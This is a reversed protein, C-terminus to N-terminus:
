DTGAATIAEIRQNAHTIPAKLRGPARALFAVYSKKAEAPRGLNELAVGHYYYPLAYYPELAIAQALQAAGEEYRQASLLISGYDLRLAPDTGDIQVAQHYEDLAMATDGQMLAVTGLAAHARAYSLDETLAKGFAERAQDLQRGALHAMGAAYLYMARSQYFYALTKQERKNMEDVLAYVQAAASDYQRLMFQSRALEFRLDFRRPEKALAQRLHQVARDFKGESYELISSTWPDSSWEWGGEGYKQTLYAAFLGAEFANHTFPHRSLAAAFLTDIARTEPAEVVFSAGEYYQVLRGKNALWLAAWRAYLPEPRSPDLRHAWYFFDEAKDPRNRMHKFGAQYYSQWDNTDLKADLDPRAPQKLQAGAVSPILLTASLAAVVATRVRAPITM